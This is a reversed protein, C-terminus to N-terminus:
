FLTIQDVPAVSVEGAVHVPVSSSPKENEFSHAVCRIAVNGTDTTFRVHRGQLGGIHQALVPISETELYQLAFEANRNGIRAGSELSKVVKGGGFVKAVLRFRSAGAKMMENILLDMAHMGYSACVRGDSTDGPLMFHNMGGVRTIPDFLCVAICSGVLTSLSTPEASAMVEGVIISKRPRTDEEVKRAPTRAPAAANRPRSGAPPVSGTNPGANKGSRQTTARAPGSAISGTGTQAPGAGAATRRRPRDPNAQYITHGLPRYLTDLRLISESHGIFLHGDPKLYEAFRTCLRDQTEDDFYIMVNRCFVIDFETNIPWTTDMFNIRRFAILDRYESRVEYLDESDGKIRNFCRRLREDGVSSARVADYVGKQAFDLVDTDIDSALIRVDWGPLRGFYDRTVMALTYPE